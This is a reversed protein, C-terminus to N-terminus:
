YFINTHILVVLHSLSRPPTQGYRAYDELWHRAASRWTCRLVRSLFSCSLRQSCILSFSLFPSCRSLFMPLPFLFPSAPFLSSTLSSVHCFSNWFSVLSEDLVYICQHGVNVVLTFSLLQLLMCWFFFFVSCPWALSILSATSCYCWATSIVSSDWYKRFCRPTLPCALVHQPGLNDGLDSCCCFHLHQALSGFLYRYFFFPSFWDWSFLM